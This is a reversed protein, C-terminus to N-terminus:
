RETVLAAGQPGDVLAVDGSQDTRVVAFGQARFMALHAAAPHGYDNDAGVSVVAWDGSLREVLDPDLNASGHHPTKVVEVADVTAAMAPDRRLRLVLDHASEREIDGLLLVRRDGVTAALVVSANNPVSGASIRRAPAWVEAHVTGIEITDKAALTQMPIHKSALWSRVRDAQDAPEAVSTTLVLGVTVSDLVGPLGGVHDAHFHTLIVAPVERIGLDQLCGRVEAPEPGVDVVIAVGEAVRLVAADGQGVDCFVVQWRDPPWGVVRAPVLVAGVLGVVWCAALPRRWAEHGLRPAILLVIVSVGALLLAGPPGGPWPIAGGPVTELHRAVASIALAPVAAIWALLAGAQSQVPAILAVAVGLITAPAVFPAALLNALVGITSVSEQLLVIVPACMLQAAVPIALAPGFGALRSPLRRGIAAGWPRVFVLLGITALTSLAFGYSRALWPDMCLLVIVAAALVPPGTTRGRRSLGILGIAGMTAARLVSPDPRALLVFCGLALAALPTRLRRPVGILGCAGLVLTLVVSVNSGSVATLHTLGTARMAETLDPPVESTDGIVLGPLLGRADAPLGSVAQRLSERVKEVALLFDPPPRSEVVPGRVTLVAVEPSAPEAPALRGSLVVQARWRVHALDEGGAILVTGHAPGTEGRGQVQAASLRVVWRDAGHSSYRVPDSSVTGSLTVTAQADRLEPLLGSDHQFRQTLASLVLLAALAGVLALTRAILIGGSQGPTRALRPRTGPAAPRAAQEGARAERMARHTRQAPEARSVLIGAFLGVGAVAGFTWVLARGSWPVVAALVAWAAVSPGLLRLDLPPGAEEAREHDKGHRGRHAIGGEGCSSSM